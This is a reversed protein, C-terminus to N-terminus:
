AKKTMTGWLWKTLEGLVITDTQVTGPPIWGAQILGQRWSVVLQQIKISALQDLEGIANQLGARKSELTKNDMELRLNAAHLSGIAQELEVKEKVLLEVSEALEYAKAYRGALEHKFQKHGALAQATKLKRGCLECKVM